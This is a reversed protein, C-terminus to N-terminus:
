SNDHRHTTYMCPVGIYNSYVQIGLNRPVDYNQFGPTGERSHVPYQSSNCVCSPSSGANQYGLTRRYISVYISISLNIYQHISTYIFLHTYIYIYLLYNPLYQSSDLGNQCIM